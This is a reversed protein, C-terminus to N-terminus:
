LVEPESGMYTRWRTRQYRCRFCRSQNAYNHSNCSFCEWGGPQWNGPRPAKCKNFNCNVKSAFNWNGCRACHWDGRKRKFLEVGPSSYVLGQGQSNPVRLDESNKSMADSHARRNRSSASDEQSLCHKCSSIRWAANWSNCRYCNWGSLSARNRPSLAHAASSDEIGHHWSSHKAPMCIVGVSGDKGRLGTYGKTVKQGSPRILKPHVEALLPQLVAHQRAWEVCQKLGWRSLVESCFAALLIFFFSMLEVFACCRGDNM